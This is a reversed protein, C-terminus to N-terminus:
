SQTIIGEPTYTESSESEPPMNFNSICPRNADFPHRLMLRRCRQNGKADLAGAVGWEVHVNNVIWQTKVSVYVAGVRM